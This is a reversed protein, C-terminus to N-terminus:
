SASSKKEQGAPHVDWIPEWLSRMDLGEADAFTLPPLSLSPDEWLRRARDLILEGVRQSPPWYIGYRLDRIRPLRIRGISLGVPAFSELAAALEDESRVTTVPYTGEVVDFNAQVRGRNLEGTISNSLAITEARGPLQVILGLVQVSIEAEVAIRRERIIPTTDPTSKIVVTSFGLEDPIIGDLWMEWVPDLLMRSLAGHQDFFWFLREKDSEAVPLDTTTTIATVDLLLHVISQVAEQVAVSLRDVSLGHLTLPIIGISAAYEAVTRQYGSASVFIGRPVGVEQLKGVFADIMPAGIPKRENKCEIAIQTRYGTVNETILVDIERRRGPFKTSPMRVNRQITVGPADHLIAVVQEVIRGKAMTKSFDSPSVGNDLSGEDNNASM